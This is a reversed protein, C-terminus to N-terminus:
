LFVGVGEFFDFGEGFAKERAHALVGYNMSTPNALFRRRGALDLKWVPRPSFARHRFQQRRVQLCTVKRASRILSQFAVQKMLKMAAKRDFVRAAEKPNVETWRTWFETM